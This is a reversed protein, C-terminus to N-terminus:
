FYLKLALQIQREPSAVTSITGADASGIVAAPLGLNPHNFVNFAESRFQLRMRETFRFDRTVGVDVNFLGPGRLINRGSNGFCACSAVFASTDFWRNVSREGDPLSGDRLRDPRATTGTLTPDKSLTVTFPQGTQHSYIGSIQWDRVLRHLVGPKKGWPLEYVGSLVFRQQVDFNSSARQAALNRADQAGPDNLDGGGSGGDISHGYTYSALLNFGTRFRRELQALLAHYNSSIQPGRVLIDGFGPYPRRANVNGGGPYPQNVNTGGMLKHAESGTYGLQAVFGAGLQRQVNLNWQVVYPMPLDFPSSIFNTNGNVATLASTPIGDRLFIPTNKDGQFTASTVFPPNNPLRMVIGANEDRGYFVGFGSRVVTKPNVQYALGLRPAINNFDARVLARGVSCRAQEGVTVLQLYCPGSDLVFNSQRDYAETFPTTLEYRVGMNFTLTKTAKWDDQIYGHYVGQRLTAIFQRSATVKQVYGLLFDAFDINTYSGDFMFRPRAMNTAYAFLTIRKLDVGLKIAHRGRIWSFNELIQYIKGSKENPLNASGAAPIPAGGVPSIGLNSLSAIVINPLGKIKPDNAGGKIGYQDFLREGFLDEQIDTYAAGFRLENLMSSSITRTASLMLSRGRLDVYGQGNAPPPLKTPLENHGTNWSARALLFDKASLRHDIRADYSDSSLREKPNYFFNNAEGPLNPLPYLQLLAAAVPDWREKSVTNGPFPTQTGPDLVPKSFIGQRMDLTPVSAIQPAAIMEHSSQWGAFFFTRDRVIPGGLTAGFQNQIHLPKPQGLPEFFPTADTRSNRLFEFLNGHLSNTGSKTTVNVVGGASQGFEASFTATQVKFEQITDIISQVIQASGVNGMIWNRNDVGDLLYSNQLARAGNSIFNDREVTRSQLTGAGLIALQIFNRGNLPLESVTKEEVVHGLSSTESELLPAAAKVFISQEASAVDLQFNIEARDQVHLEFPQSKQSRFGEKGVLVEYRGPRLAPASYFGSENTLLEAPSASEPRTITITAGPVVAGSPDTVFGSVVGTDVQALLAVSCSFAVLIARM